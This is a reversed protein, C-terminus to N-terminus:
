LGDDLVAPENPVLTAAYHGELMRRARWEGLHRRPKPVLMLDCELGEFARKWTSLRADKKGSELEHWHQQRIGARHAAEAQSMGIKVRAAWLLEGPAASKWTPPASRAFVVLRNLVRKVRLPLNVLKGM